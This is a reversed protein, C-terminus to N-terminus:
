WSAVEDDTLGRKSERTADARSRPRVTLGGKTTQHLEDDAEGHIDSWKEAIADFNFPALNISDPVCAIYCNSRWGQGRRVTPRVTLWQGSRATAIARQVTARSLRTAQVIAAQSPWCEGSRDMFTGLVYLTLHVTPQDPGHQRLVRLWHWPPLRRAM